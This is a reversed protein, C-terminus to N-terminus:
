CETICKTRLDPSSVTVHFARRFDDTSESWVERSVAEQFWKADDSSLRGILSTEIRDMEDSVREKEGTEEVKSLADFAGLLKAYGGVHTPASM